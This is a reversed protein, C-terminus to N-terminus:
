NKWRYCRYKGMNEIKGKGRAVKRIRPFLGVNNRDWFAGIRNQWRLEPRYRYKRKKGFDKLVNDVTLQRRKEEGVIKKAGELRTKALAM